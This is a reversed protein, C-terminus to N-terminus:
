RGALRAEAEAELRRVEERPVGSRGLRQAAHWARYVDDLARLERRCQRRAVGLAIQPAARGRRAVRARDVLCGVYTHAATAARDLPTHLPAAEQGALAGLYILWVTM